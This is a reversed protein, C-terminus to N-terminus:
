QAEAARWEAFNLSSRIHRVVMEAEQVMRLGQGRAWTREFARRSDELAHPPYSQSAWRQEAQQRALAHQVEVNRRVEALRAEARALEARLVSVAEVEARARALTMHQVSSPDPM